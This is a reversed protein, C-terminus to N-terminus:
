LDELLGWVSIELFLEESCRVFLNLFILVTVDLGDKKEGQTKVTICSNRYKGM